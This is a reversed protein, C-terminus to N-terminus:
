SGKTAGPRPPPAPKAVVVAVVDLKGLDSYPRVSVRAVLSTASARDVRTVAGVPIGSPFIGGQYGQTVLSDGLRVDTGARVPEFALDQEGQGRLIGPAKNRALSAAVGSSPDSILLVTAYDATVKAVRGVLGDADLVAMDTAVGRSAGADITVSWQFNSGSSAVVTAGVTKCGCREAMALAGRLRENEVLVDQYTREQARLRDVEARLHQNESRLRGLGAVGGVFDGIPRLTASVLRQVPGFVSITVHQLREVPGGPGERFDLTIVVVAAVLLVALM